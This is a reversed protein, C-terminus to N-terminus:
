HMILNSMSSFTATLHKCIAWTYAHQNCFFIILNIDKAYILSTHVIDVCDLSWPWISSLKLTKFDLYWLGHKKKGKRRRRVLPLTKVNPRYLGVDSILSDLSQVIHSINDISPIIRKKLKILDSFFVKFGSDHITRGKAQNLFFM